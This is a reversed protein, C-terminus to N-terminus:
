IVSRIPLRSKPSRSRWRHFSDAQAFSIQNSTISVITASKVRPATEHCTDMVAVPTALKVVAEEVVAEVTGEVMAVEARTDEEEEGVVTVALVEKLATVPLIDLRAVNTASKDEEEEEVQIDEGAVVAALDVQVELVRTLAIVLFTDTIAAVTALSKRKLNPANM